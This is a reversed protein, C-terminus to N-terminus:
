EKLEQVKNLYENGQEYLRAILDEIDEIAIADYDVNMNECRLACVMCDLAIAQLHEMSVPQGQPLGSVEDNYFKNYRRLVTDSRKKKESEELMEEHKLTLHHAKEAADFMEDPYFRDEMLKRLKQKGYQTLEFKKNRLENIEEQSLNLWPADDKQEDTM